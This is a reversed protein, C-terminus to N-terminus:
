ARQERMQSQADYLSMLRQQASTDKSWEPTGMRSELAKIEDNISQVPNNSNPVVTGAPNLKRATDAFFVMAEPSNFLARGDPLRANMFDERVSEPLGNVFGTVMNINTQYDSGWAEKLASTAQQQQIGDQQQSVDALAERGALFTSVLNSMVENSVNADHGVKFVEDLIAQDDDGIVVGDGLNIQYDEATAPVGNATRWDSLQEPTANEPLGNSLEGKRIKDQANVYNKVLSGFDSVRELMGGVRTVDDGEFGATEILQQRWGETPTAFPNPAGEGGTAPLGGDGADGGGGGDAPAGGGGSAGDGDAENMLRYKIFDTM